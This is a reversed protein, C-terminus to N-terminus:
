PRLKKRSLRRGGKAWKVTRKGTRAERKPAPPLPRVYTNKINEPIEYGESHAFERKSPMNAYMNIVADNERHFLEASIHAKANAAAKSIRPLYFHKLASLGYLANPSSKPFNALSLKGASTYLTKGAAIRQGTSYHAFTPSELRVFDRIQATTFPGFLNQFLGVATPFDGEQNFLIRLQQAYFTGIKQSNTTNFAKLLLPGFLLPPLDLLDYIGEVDGHADWMPWYVEEIAGRASYHNPSNSNEPPQLMIATFIQFIEDESYQKRLGELVVSMDLDGAYDVITNFVRTAVSDM